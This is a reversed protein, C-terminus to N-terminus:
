RYVVNGNLRAGYLYSTTLEGNIWYNFIGDRRTAARTGPALVLSPSNNVDTLDFVYEVRELKLVETKLPPDEKKLQHQTAVSRSPKIIIRNGETWYTGSEKEIYYKPTHYQFSEAYFTYTGNGAFRYVKKAYGANDGTASHTRNQSSTWEYELLGAPIKSQDLNKNTPPNTASLGVIPPLKVSDVFKEIEPQYEDSNTIALVAVVKGNGTFTTLFAAGKLGDKEFAAIGAEAQWGNKDGTKGRQPAAANLGESAMGRWLVEFNQASDGLGDVSKTLSIVCYNSGSEKSFRLSNADKEVAWGAPGAYTVIDFKATQALVNSTLVATFILILYLNPTKMQTHNSYKAPENRSLTPLNPELITLFGPFM